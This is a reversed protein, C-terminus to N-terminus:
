TGNSRMAMIAFLIMSVLALVGIFVWGAPVLGAYFGLGTGAALGIMGGIIVGAGSKTIGGFISALLIVPGLVVTISIAFNIGGQQQSTLSGGGGVTVTNTFSTVSTTISTITQIPLASQWSSYAILYLKTTTSTGISTFSSPQTSTSTSAVGSQTLMGTLTSNYIQIHDDGVIGVCWLNFPLPTALATNLPINVAVTITHNASGSVLAFIQSAFAKTLPATPTAAQQTSSYIFLQLYHTGSGKISKPETTISNVVQSGLANGCYFYLTSNTLYVGHTSSNTVGLTNSGPTTGSGQPTFLVFWMIGGINTVTNTPPIWSGSYTASGGVGAYYSQFSVSDTLLTGSVFGNNQGFPTTSCLGTTTCQDTGVFPNNWNAITYGYSGNNGYKSTILGGVVLSASSVSFSATDTTGSTIQNAQITLLGAVASPVYPVGTTGVVVGTEIVCGNTTTVGISTSFITTITDNVIVGAGTAVPLFWYSVSIADTKVSPGFQVVPASAALTIAATPQDTLGGFNTSTVSSPYIQSGTCAVAVLYTFPALLAQVPWVSAPVKSQHTTGSTFSDIYMTEFCERQGNQCYSAGGAGSGASVVFGYDVWTQSAGITFPFLTPNTVGSCDAKTSWGFGCAEIASASTIFMGGKSFGTGATITSGSGTSGYAAAVFNTASATCSNTGTSVATGTGSSHATCTTLSVVGTFDWAASYSWSNTSGLNAKITITDAGAATTRGYWACAVSGSVFCGGTYVTGLTDTPTAPASTGAYYASLIVILEGTGATGLLFTGGAKSHNFNAYNVVGPTAYVPM